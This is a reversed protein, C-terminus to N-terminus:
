DARRPPPNRLVTSVDQENREVPPVVDGPGAIKVQAPPLQVREGTQVQEGGQLQEGTVSEGPQEGSRPGAGGQETTSQRPQTSSGQSEPSLPESLGTGPNPLVTETEGPQRLTDSLPQNSQAGNLTSGPTPPASTGVGTQQALAPAAIALATCTAIVLKM